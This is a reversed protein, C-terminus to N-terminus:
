DRQSEQFLHCLLQQMSVPPAPQLKVAGKDFFEKETM